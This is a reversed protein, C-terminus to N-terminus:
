ALIGEIVNGTFCTQHLLLYLLLIHESLMLKSYTFQFVLVLRKKTLLLVVKVVFM